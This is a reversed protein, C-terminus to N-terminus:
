AEDDHGAFAPWGSRRKTSAAFVHIAPVLGAMVVSTRGIRWKSRKKECSIRLRARIPEPPPNAPPVPIPTPPEEVPVPADPDPAHPPQGPPKPPDSLHESDPTM